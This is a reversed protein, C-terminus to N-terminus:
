WHCARRQEALAEHLASVDFALRDFPAQDSEVELRQAPRTLPRLLEIAVLGRGADTVTGDELVQWPRAAAVPQGDVMLRITARNVVVPQATILQLRSINQLCSIALYPRPETGGLAPVSIVVRTQGPTGDPESLVRLGTQDNARKAESRRVLEVVDPISSTSAPEPLASKQEQAIPRPPTGATHDFCALRELPSVIATCDRDAAGVPKGGDCGFLAGASLLMLGLSKM